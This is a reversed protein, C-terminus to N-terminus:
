YAFRRKPIAHIHPSVLFLMSSVLHQEDSPNRRSARRRGGRRPEMFGVGEIKYGREISYWGSGGWHGWVMGKVVLLETM